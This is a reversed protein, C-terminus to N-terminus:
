EPFFPGPGAVACSLRWATGKNAASTSMREAGQRVPRGNHITRKAPGSLELFGSPVFLDGSEAEPGLCAQIMPVAGDAASQALCCTLKALWHPMTGQRTSTAALNTMAYGPDAALAKVHSGRKLLEEHLAMTFAASALKSYAYRTWPGGGGQFERFISAGDGGLEGRRSQRFYEPTLDQAPMNRARSSHFLVRAEGRAEAARELQPMLAKTLLIHSFHNTQMQVDFGDETRVDLMAMVGANNALVDLGGHLAAIAGAKEACARVSAFSLLDCAITEVDVDAGIAARRVGEEAAEARESPRNLMLVKLAGRRACALALHYGTGTTCGTIAVVKGRLAPLTAVCDEYLKQGKQYSERDFRGILAGM